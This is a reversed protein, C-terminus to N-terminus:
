GVHGQCQGFSPANGIAARVWGRHVRVSVVVQPIRNWALFITVGSTLRSGIPDSSGWLHQSRHRRDCVVHDGLTISHHAMNGCIIADAFFVSFLNMRGGRSTYTRAAGPAHPLAGSRPRAACRRCYRRVALRSAHARTPRLGTSKDDRLGHSAVALPWTCPSATIEAFSSSAIRPETPRHGTLAILRLSSQASCSSHGSGVQPWATHQRLSMTPRSPQPLGAHCQGFADGPMVRALSLIPMVMAPSVM